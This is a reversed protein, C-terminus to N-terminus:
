RPLYGLRRCWESFEAVSPMHELVNPGINSGWKKFGPDVDNESGRQIGNFMVVGHLGFAARALSQLV